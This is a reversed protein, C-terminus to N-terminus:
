KFALNHNPNDFCRFWLPICQKGHRMSIMFVTFNDHSFMHDLTIHVRKDGHKKRYNSIVHKIINHYLSFPDFLDNKFLRRIRKVVSDHQVFSFDGKLEKSIDAAVGSEALIM